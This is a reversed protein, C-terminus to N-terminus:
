TWVEFEETRVDERYVDLAEKFSDFEPCLEKFTDYWPESECVNNYIEEISETSYQNDFYDVVTDEYTHENDCYTYNMGNNDLQIIRQNIEEGNEMEDIRDQGYSSIQNLSLSNNFQDVLYEYIKYYHTNEGLTEEQILEDNDDYLSIIVNGNEDFEFNYSDHEVSYGQSQYIIYGITNEIFERVEEPNTIYICGDAGM